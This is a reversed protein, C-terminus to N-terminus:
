KVSAWIKSDLKEEFFLESNEDYSRSQFLEFQWLYIMEIDLQQIKYFM